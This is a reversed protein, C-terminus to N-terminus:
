VKVHAWRTTENMSYQPVYQKYKWHSLIRSSLSDLVLIDDKEYVALVAHGIARITDWLIIVRMEENAIGLHRLAFFKAIAFDECDGSRRLFETPSAWYERMGYVENDEKYPWRNFYQNVKRLKHTAGARRNAHASAGPAV